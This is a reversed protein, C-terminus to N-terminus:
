EFDAGTDTGEFEVKKMVDQDYKQVNAHRALFIIGMTFTISFIVIGM